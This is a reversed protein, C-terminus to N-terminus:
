RKVWYNGICGVTSDWIDQVKGGVIAVVHGGGINAVIRANYDHEKGTFAWPDKQLQKCFENGTYKKGDPKRPQRQKYWGKSQLYKDYLKADGDDYGTKCQLEALDMVVQVYPIELVTCLAREVCDTTTRGKPNANYYHFTSTEIVQTRAM